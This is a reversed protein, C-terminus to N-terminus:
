RGDGVLVFAGWFYPDRWRRTSAITLQAQRLAEGPALGEVFLHRYFNTMLQATARDPVQWLSAILSRAGAYMFGQALGILGDGRVSRGLATECASLVVLDANLNLNYIDHLRLHGDRPTGAPDFQSLVLSSLAPYRSDVQGHTAFHLVRYQSLDANLVAARSAAFGTSVDRQDEQLLAAVSRAEYGTAPLRELDSALFASPALARSGESEIDATKGAQAARALRSDSAQLVPDGFVALQKGPRAPASRSRQQALSSMSPLSVVERQELLATGAATPLVGFPIYQLAGDAVVLVRERSISEAVPSLVLAALRSLAVASEDAAALNPRYTRLREYVSRAAAEIEDRSALTAVELSNRTLVWAFSRQEALVYQLLVTDPDLQRQVEAASLVQPASLGAYRPNGRRMETEILNLENELAALNNVSAALEPNGAPLNQQALRDRRYRAQALREFLATRRNVLGPDMGRHLDAAAEALLDAHMRARSREGVAFAARLYEDDPEAGSEHMSMLLDIQLDYYEHRLSAHFARLEPDAVRERLQELADISASGLRVAEPLEGRARAALAMANLADAQEARLNLTEYITLADNLNREARRPEALGLYARGLELEADALLRPENLTRAAAAAQGAHELAEDYQALAGHDRALLRQVYARDLASSTYSLADTHYALAAELDDEWYAIRGLYTLTALHSAGDNADRLMPLARQLYDKALEFEGLGYYAQGIGHLSYAVGGADELQRHIELAQSYSRLADDYNGFLRQSAALNDLTGARLDQLKGPPMIQLVREFSDIASILYGQEADIVAQNALPKFEAAWEELSRLMSAASQWDTKAMDAAGMYFRALGVDNTIVGVEYGNGLREHVDIAADFLALARNFIAQARPAVPVQPDHEVNVAQEILAAGLLHRANAGLAAQSERAYLEAALEALEACREWDSSEYYLRAMSYVAQARERGRGLAVWADAAQNYYALADGPGSEPAESTQQGARSMADWAEIERPDRLAELRLSHGGAAGTHEDSFVTLLYQGPRANAVLAFEREDRLLPSNYTRIAGSPDTLQLVLDLGHQDLELLYARGGEADFRYRAIQDARQERLQFTASEQLQIPAPGPAATPGQSWGFTPACLLVSFVARGTMNLHASGSM